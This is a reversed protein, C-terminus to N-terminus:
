VGRSRSMRIPLANGPLRYHVPFGVQLNDDLLRKGPHWGKSRGRLGPLNFLRQAEQGPRLPGDDHSAAPHDGRVRSRGGTPRPSTM